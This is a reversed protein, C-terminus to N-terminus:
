CGIAGGAPGDNGMPGDNGGGEAELEVAAGATSDSESSSSKPGDRGGSMIADLATAPGEFGTWPGVRGGEKM